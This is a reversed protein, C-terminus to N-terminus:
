EHHLSFSIDSSWCRPMTTATSPEGADFAAALQAAWSAASRFTGSVTTWATVVGVAVQGGTGYGSDRATRSSSSPLFAIMCAILSASSASGASRFTVMLLSSTYELGASARILIDSSASIITTPVAPRPNSARPTSPETLAVTARFAFQGTATM